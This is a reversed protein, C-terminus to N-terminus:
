VTNKLGGDVVKKWIAENLGVAKALQARVRGLEEELETERGISRAAGRLALTPEARNLFPSLPDLLQRVDQNSGLNLEVKRGGNGGNQAWEIPRIVRGIGGSLLARELKTSGSDSYLPRELKDLISRTLTHIFSIPGPHTTTPPPNIIRTPLLSPLGLIQIASQETGIIIMRSDDTLHVASIVESSLRFENAQATGTEPSRSPRSTSNTSPQTPQSNSTAGEAVALSKTSSM